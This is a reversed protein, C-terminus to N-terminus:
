NLSSAARRGAGVGGAGVERARALAFGIGQRVRLRPPTPLEDPDCVVDILTATGSLLAREFACALDTAGDVRVGAMGCATAVAPFEPNRLASEFEPWGSVEQEFKV